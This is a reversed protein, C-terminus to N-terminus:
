WNEVIVCVLIVSIVTLIVFGVVYMWTPADKYQKKM